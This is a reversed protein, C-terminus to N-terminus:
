LLASIVTEEDNKALKGPKLTAIKTNMKTIQRKYDNWSEKQNKFQKNDSDKIPFFTNNIIM